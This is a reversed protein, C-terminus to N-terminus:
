PRMTRMVVGAVIIFIVLDAVVHALWPVLMGRTRRRLWGLMVGYLFTMAVGWLGNPFGHLFHMCGFLWAQILISLAGAGAASDLSQMIVGRYISEEMAANGAAFALGAVPFLWLPMAPM